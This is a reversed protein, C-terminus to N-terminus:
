IICIDFILEHCKGKAWKITGDQKTVNFETKSFQGEKVEKVADDYKSITKDNINGYYPGSVSLIRTTHSVIVEYVITPKSM